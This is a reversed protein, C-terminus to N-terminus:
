AYLVKLDLSNDNIYIKYTTATVKTITPFIMNGSESGSNVYFSMTVTAVDYGSPVTITQEYTGAQGTTAAWSAALITNSGHTLNKCEVRASDSNDHVHSNVRTWNDTLNTWWTGREGTSPVKYGKSLTTPM